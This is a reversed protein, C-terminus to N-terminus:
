GPPGTRSSRTISSYPKSNFCRDRPGTKHLPPIGPATLPQTLFSGAISTGTDMARGHRPSPKRGLRIMVAHSDDRWSPAVGSPVANHLRTCHLVPTTTHLGDRSRGLWASCSPPANWRGRTDDDPGLLAHDRTHGHSPLESCRPLDTRLPPPCTRALPFFPSETLPASHGLRRTLGRLADHSGTDRTATEHRAGTRGSVERYGPPAPKGRALFPTSNITNLIQLRAAEKGPM